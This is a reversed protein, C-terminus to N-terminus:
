SIQASVAGGASVGQQTNKMLASCHGQVYGKEDRPCAKCAYMTATDPDANRGWSRETGKKVKGRGTLRVSM